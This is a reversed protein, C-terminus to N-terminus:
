FCSTAEVNREQEVQRCDPRVVGDQGFFCSRVVDDDCSIPEACGGFNSVAIPFDFPATEVELGGLTSGRVVVRAIITQDVPIVGDLFQQAVTGDVITAGVVGYGPNSGAAPDAFGTAPVTFESLLAGSFDYVESDVEFFTVRNSEARLTDADGRTVLQNGVSFHAVYGRAWAVNMGGGTFAAGSPDADYVCGEEDVEPVIVHRVFVGTEADTCGVGLAAFGTVLSVSLLKHISGM